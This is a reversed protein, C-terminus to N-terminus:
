KPNTYVYTSSTKNPICNIHGVTATHQYELGDHLRDRLKEPAIKKKEEM